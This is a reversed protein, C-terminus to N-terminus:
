KVTFNWSRVVRNGARDIVGAIAQHTGPPLPKRFIYAVVDTEPDYEGYVSRGDVFLHISDSGAIGSERDEVRVRLTPRSGATGNPRPSIIELQPDVEDVFIGVL